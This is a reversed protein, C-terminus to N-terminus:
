ERDKRALFAMVLLWGLVEVLGYRLEDSHLEASRTTDHKYKEDSDMANALEVIHKALTPITIVTAPLKSEQMGDYQRQLVRKIESRQASGLKVLAPAEELLNYISKPSLVDYKFLQYFYTFLQIPQMELGPYQWHCGVRTQEGSRRIVTVVLANRGYHEKALEESTKAVRRVYSLSTYHHAIAIGISATVNGRREETADSPLAGVVEEQYKRQLQDVLELVTVISGPTRIDRALPALAFVDDGGAYVLRAPYKEEILDPAFKRSFESLATSIARHEQGNGVGNLLIGMRDGDMQIMAYYPTPRPAPSGEIVKPLDRISKPGLEVRQKIQDDDTLDYDKKLRYPTFTEAFYCDGDRRLVELLGPQQTALRSLYPITDTPMEALPGNTARLWINLANANMGGKFLSEVFAATAVSSTSPFAVNPIHRSETAFRKITDIADLRESGDKSIDHPSLNTALSVWFARVAKRDSGEGRLAEREGSITDKEGAEGDVQPEFDRLRKRADFIQQTHKLWQRYEEPKGPFIVWFIEFLSNPNTQRKWIRETDDTAYNEVIARWVRDRIEGWRKEIRTRCKEVENHAEEASQFIAVFKNPIDPIDRESDVTRDTPYVLDGKLEKLAAEMLIALLYSGLWLDRTKRAQAIFTQVPGLSYMLMYQTM